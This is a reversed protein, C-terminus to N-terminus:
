KSILGKEVFFSELANAPIDSPINLRVIHILALYIVEIRNLASPHLTKMESWKEDPIMELAEALLEEKIGHYDFEKISRGLLGPYTFEISNNILLRTLLSRYSNSISEWNKGTWEMGNSVKGCFVSDNECLFQSIIPEINARGINDTSNAWEIWDNCNQERDM